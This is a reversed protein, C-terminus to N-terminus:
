RITVKQKIIKGEFFKVSFKAAKEHDFDKCSFLNIYARNWLESFHASILSTEILQVMSYGAAFDVHLAFRKVITKGFPKVKLEQCVKIAYEKIKKASRITKPNCDGLDLVFEKGFMKKTEKKM